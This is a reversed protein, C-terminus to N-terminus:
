LFNISIKYPPFFLLVNVSTVDIKNLSIIFKVLELNGSLCAYHLITM